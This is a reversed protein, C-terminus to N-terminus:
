VHSFVVAVLVTVDVADLVIVVVSVVDPVVVTVVASNELIAHSDSSPLM